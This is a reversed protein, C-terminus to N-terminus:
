QKKATRGLMRTPLNSQKGPNLWDLTVALAAAIHNFGMTNIPMDILEEFTIILKDQDPEFRAGSGTSAGAVPCM